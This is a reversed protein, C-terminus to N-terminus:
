RTGLLLTNLPARGPNFANVPHDAAYGVSCGVLLKYHEPVDFARRVPVPWVALAGQACTGLGHAHCALMFSQLFMGADLAAYAGLGEHAFVFVAVPADFFQYNRRMQRERGAHDARDIGLAGYLGFGTARRADQLDAPYELPVNFEGRPIAGTLWAWAKKWAPARQLAMGQDFLAGLERALGDRVAGQAVGVRCPQTNSWSPAHIADELCARLVEAPVPDPKFQRISRRGRLADELDM